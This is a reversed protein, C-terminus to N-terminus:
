TDFPNTSRIDKGYANELARVHERTSADHRDPPQVELLLMLDGKRGDRRRIGHGRVRLKQGTRAGKPLTVRVQEWPTHVLIKAGDYAEPVTVPLPLLLDDGERRVVPHDSVSLRLVLDGPPGGKLGAEGKGELRIENGTAAGPPIKVRLTRAGSVRGQGRCEACPTSAIRGTGGCRSCTTTSSSFWSTRSRRGGGGCDPCAATDGPMFGSGSCATCASPIEVQFTKGAGRVAEMFSVEVQVAVDRGRSTIPGFPSGRMAGSRLDEFGPASGFGGFGHFLQEFIDQVDDMGPPAGGPAPRFGGSVGYRRAQEPDFGERLGQLGFEDYLKRKEPDSLVGSAVSIEKFREEAATDGPNRDPHCKLALKRYAKKIDEESADSEVGLVKYLDQEPM